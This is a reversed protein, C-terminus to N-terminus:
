LTKYICLKQLIKYLIPYRIFMRYERCRDKPLTLEERELIDKVKKVIDTRKKSERPYRKVLQFYHYTLLHLYRLLSAHYLDKYSRQRYYDARNEYAQLMDLNHLSYANTISGDRRRYYYYPFSSYVVGAARDFLEHIVYEDEHYKGIPFRIDTFLEATFLKDCIIGSNIGEDASLLNWLPEQGTYVGLVIGRVAELFRDAGESVYAFRCVSIDVRYKRLLQLLHRYMDRHVFDDSDVFGIYRGSAAAIGANRASSLGGNEKHIVKIRSDKDAYSDCLHGSMDTSGDDILIIEIKEYSQACLSAVCCDLYHETNYVPVIISILEKENEQM